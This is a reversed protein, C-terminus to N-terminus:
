QPEQAPEETPEAEIEGEADLPAEKFYPLAPAALMGRPLEDLKEAFIARVNEAARLFDSMQTVTETPEPIITPTITLLLETRDNREFTTTFAGGILPLDGLIPVKGERTEMRSDIIGGLVVTKGNPVTVNTTISRTQFAPSIQGAQTSTDPATVVRNTQTIELDILGSENLKPKIELKVGTNRYEIDTRSITSGQDQDPTQASSSAVPTEGGVDIIAKFGDKVFVRPQSLIEVKAERQIAQVLALGDSGTFFISGTPDGTVLGPSATLGFIGLKEIGDGQFFYQVGFELQGTLAVEAITSNIFVQMKPRDVAQILALVEAYDEPTAEVMLIRETQELVLRVQKKAGPAAGSGPVANGGEVKDALSRSVFAELAIPDFNQIRYIYRQRRSQEPPQDVQEIFTRVLKRLSPDRSVVMLRDTGTIPVFAALPEGGAGQPNIRSTSAISELLRAADEPTRTGLRYTWVSVGEFSPTDLASILRSMRNLQRTTDAMIIMRGVAAQYSGVSMLEKVVGTVETPSAYRLKRVRVATDEGEAAALANMIPASSNKSRGVGARFMIVGDRDDVAWDYLSALAGIFDVLEARTMEEDIDLTVTGGALKPDVVFPRKLLQGVLVQLVDSVPAANAAYKVRLLEGGEARAVRAPALGEGAGPVEDARITEDGILEPGRSGAGGGAGSSAAIQPLVGAGIPQSVPRGTYTWPEAQDVASKPPPVSAQRKAGKACGGLGSSVVVSGGACALLMWAAATKNSTKM